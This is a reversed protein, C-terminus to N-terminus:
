FPVKGDDEESDINKNPLKSGGGFEDDDVDFNMSNAKSQMFQFGSTYSLKSGGENGYADNNSKGFGAQPNDFSVFEEKPLEVFKQYHLLAKLKVSDLQGNRHKAINIHTEGDIPQGHENNNINHYEPRYIFMVMDADQEIAGSERLDSLQPIKGRDSTRTEVARSLQSLAIVPIELEKALAKLERSIKSIEQERNGNSGKDNPAHMLQLYDIIVLDLTNNAKLRRCKARLEFINLGAQDDIYIQSKMLREMGRNLQQFEYDELRGRTIGDLRVESVASLMRKVLQVSSMELSFIAVASPKPSLAANIALNLAFATKGVSPRAALIILDTKQWGATIADLTPFGSPVGIIDEKQERSKSIQDMTEILVEQMSTYNKRLFNNGIALLETEAKDMMEFVDGKDEFADYIIDGCIRILERQIFKELVIRAHAVVHASSVVNMTLKTLFYTGGILELDGKKRLEETVTLLDIAQGKENLNKIAAYIKRHADVYFCDSSPLVELVDPFKDKELMIAGLIAEELERTQPPVKGLMLNQDTKPQKRTRSNSPLASLDKPINQAM